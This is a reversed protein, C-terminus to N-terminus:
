NSAGAASGAIIGGGRRVGYGPGTPIRKPPGGHAGALVSRAFGIQGNTEPSERTAGARPGAIVEAYDWPTALGRRVLYVGAM